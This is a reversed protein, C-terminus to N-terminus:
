NVTSNFIYDVFVSKLTDCSKEPDPLRGTVWPCESVTTRGGAFNYWFKSLLTGEAFPAAANYSSHTRGTVAEGAIVVFDALSVSTCTSQYVTVL